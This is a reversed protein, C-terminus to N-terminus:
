LLPTPQNNKFVFKRYLIYNWVLTACTAFLKGILLVIDKNLSMPEVLYRIGEIIVPQIVWLGFLTISLFLVIHKSTSKNNNKFTFKKNAFFSFVLAASTSIFNSAIVPLGFGVLVFLITFDIATNLGGVVGFRLKEAHKKLHNRM